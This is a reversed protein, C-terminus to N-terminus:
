AKKLVYQLEDPNIVPKKFHDEAIRPCATNVWADVGYPLVNDPSVADGAFVFAKGGDDEIAEKIRWATDPHFQGTKTSVLVGFVDASLALAIRGKRKTSFKKTEEETIRTLTKAEPNLVYVPKGTQAAVAAPHFRGSGVYLMCDVSGALAAAKSVDCGLIQGGVFAKKGQHELYERVGGLKPVHQITAVLGIRGYSDLSSINEKLLPLPDKKSYCPVYLTKM